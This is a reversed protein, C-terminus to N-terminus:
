RLFFIRFAILQFLINKIASLQANSNSKAKIVSSGFDQFDCLFTCNHELKCTRSSSVFIDFLVLKLRDKNTNPFIKVKERDPFTGRLPPAARDENPNVLRM